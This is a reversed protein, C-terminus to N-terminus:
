GIRAMLERVVQENREAYILTTSVNSHGLAAQVVEVGSMRRAETAFLHRLQHFHWGHKQHWERQAQPTLGAPAPFARRCARVIAHGVSCSNFTEGPARRPTSKRKLRNRQMHSPFRKTKRAASREALKQEVTEVPRFCHQDAPRDLFPRLAQLARPGLIITRTKGHHQTKHSRPVYVATGDAELRVDAPRLGCIEGVRMGSYRGIQIMAAIVPSCHRITADVVDGSVPLVPASERCSTRGARLGGVAQLGHLIGAPVLEEAVGWKFAAKICVLLKNVTRRCYGAQVMADLVARLKLPSFEAVPLSHWLKCVHKLARQCVWVQSTERGSKVYYGKAHTMYRMCLTGVTPGSAPAATVIEGRQLSSILRAYKELSEASQWKGLYHNRGNVTCVACNRAKHYRYAPIRSRPEM